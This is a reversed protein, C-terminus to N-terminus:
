ARIAAPLVGFAGGGGGVVGDVFRSAYRPVREDDRRVLCLLRLRGQAGDRGLMGLVRPGQQPQEEERRAQHVSPRTRVDSGVCALRVVFVGDEGNQAATLGDVCTRVFDVTPHTEVLKSRETGERGGLTSGTRVTGFDGGWKKLSKKKGKWGKKRLDMKVYNNADGRAEGAGLSSGWGKGPLSTFSPAQPGGASSSSASSALFSSRSPLSDREVAASFRKDFGDDDDDDNTERPAVSTVTAADHILRRRERSSDDRSLRLRKADDFRPETTTTAATLPGDTPKATSGGRFGPASSSPSPSSSRGVGFSASSSARWPKFSPPGPLPRKKRNQDKLTKKKRRRRLKAAEALRRKEESARDAELHLEDLFRFKEAVEPTRDSRGPNRLHKRAFDDEWRSLEDRLEILEVSSGDDLPRSASM